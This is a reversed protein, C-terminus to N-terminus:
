KYFTLLQIVLSYHFLWLHTGPGFYSGELAKRVLLSSTRLAKLGLSVVVMSGTGAGAGHGSPSM